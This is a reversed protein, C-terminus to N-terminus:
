TVVWASIVVSRITLLAVADPAPTAVDWGVTVVIRYLGYDGEGCGMLRIKGFVFGAVTVCFPVM